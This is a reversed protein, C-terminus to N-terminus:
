KNMQHTSYILKEGWPNAIKATQNLINSSDDKSKDLREKSRHIDTKNTISKYCYIHYTYVSEIEGQVLKVKDWLVMMNKENYSLREKICEM